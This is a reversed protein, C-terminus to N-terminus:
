ASSSHGHFHDDIEVDALGVAVTDDGGRFDEVQAFIVVDDGHQDLLRALIQAGLGFPRDLIARDRCDPDLLLFIRRITM